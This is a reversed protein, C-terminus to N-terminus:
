IVEKEISTNELFIETNTKDSVVSYSKMVSGYGYCWDKPLEPCREDFAFALRRLMSPHACPFALKTVNLRETSKKVCIRIMEAIEGYDGSLRCVYINTRIGSNELNVVKQLQEICNRIMDEKTTGASFCIDINIDTTKEKVPVKVQRIMSTPVGQLYRPVSCNGGVVDYVSRQRTSAQTSNVKMSEKLGKEIKNAGEEWGSKLLELAEEISTTGTFSTRESSKKSSCLPCLTKIRATKIYNVFESISDFDYLVVKKYTTVRFSDALTVNTGTKKKM